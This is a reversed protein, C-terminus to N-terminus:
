RESFTKKRRVFYSFAISGSIVGDRTYDPYRQHLTRRKRLERLLNYFFEVHALVIAGGGAWDGALVLRMMAVGDLMARVPMKYVLELLSWHRFVMFLSNRFNLFVKKPNGYALTGAGVHYVISSACYMVRQGDRHLKWCLDIEEMHAFFDEDFGGFTHFSRARILMCAGSTWFVHRDDNYQGHDTEVHDFIRGRCFPYGFSDIYGGAAGAHEFKDRERYSRIKPQVAAVEEHRDLCEVLPDLWGPTVEVDSNLLLYYDTDIQRLARNYGGCFGYNKNLEIVRVGPFTDRVFSVSGDTSANDAVVILANDSCAVVGPLFQRLLSEGNYNLIVIATRSM